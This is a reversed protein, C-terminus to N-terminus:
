PNNKEYLSKAKGSLTVKRISQIYPLFSFLGFTIVGVLYVNKQEFLEWLSYSIMMMIFLSAWIVLLALAQIRMYIIFGFDKAISEVHRNYEVEKKNKWIRYKTSFTAIFRSIFDKLFGAITSIILGAFVVTIWWTPDQIIEKLKDM